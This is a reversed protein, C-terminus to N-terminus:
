GACSYLGANVQTFKYIIPNQQYSYFGNPGTWQYFTGGSATLYLTGGYPVPNPTANVIANVTQVDIYVSATATCGYENTGTVTYIGDMYAPINYIIPNQFNSLYGYPGSWQYTSGGSAFLYAADGECVEPTTTWATIAPLPRIQVNVSYSSTCGGYLGTIVVTYIGSHSANVNARTPNQSTSTFGGPGTWAYTGGGTAHLQLTSGTCSTSADYWANGVPTENVKLTVSKTATCGAANTVTVTYTGSHYLKANPIQPNQQTSTYGAPGSWAYTTGGSSSLQILDGTCAPNPSVNATANPASTVSVNVSATSTCGASSTVTVTYVGAMNLEMHRGFSAGEINFGNPGSWKYGVGGTATFWTLQGQCAPNPTASATAHPKSNVVVNVTATSTCGNSNTVTVTYNGAGTTSINNITPNQQNSSFNNPGSWNYSTGGSSTLYLTEGECIPDPSYSAAAVPSPFVTVNLTATDTCGLANTVMVQYTGSGSLTINSISPNQQTSTFGNPGSWNYTIGGSATLFLTKGACVPNPNAAANAFPLGDVEVNFSCSATNGFVDEVTFSNVTTGIPFNSGSPLGSTQTIIPQPVETGEVQVDDVWVGTGAVFEDSSIRWRFRVSQGSFAPNLDIVVNQFGLNTGSWAQRGALPNGSGNVLTRNYPYSMFSGGGSLIDSWPGGNESYELVVGDFDSETNYYLNFSLVATGNEIEYIPSTLSSLSVSNMNQAFASNPNSASQSSATLWNNPDGQDTTTSWDSPFLPAVITDFNEISEYSCTTTVIPLDFNVIAM